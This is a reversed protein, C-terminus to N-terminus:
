GVDDDIDIWSAGSVDWIENLVEWGKGGALRLGRRGHGRADCGAIGKGCPVNEVVRVQNGSRPSGGFIGGGSAATSNSFTILLDPFGDVKFDGPRLPLPIFPKSPPHLLLGDDPSMTFISSM